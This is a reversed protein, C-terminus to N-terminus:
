FFRTSMVLPYECARKRKKPRAPTKPVKKFISSPSPLDSDEDPLIIEAGAAKKLTPRSLRSSQRTPPSVVASPHKGLKSPGAKANEPKRRTSDTPERSARPRSNSALSESRTTQPTKAKARKTTETVQAPRKRPQPSPTFLDM